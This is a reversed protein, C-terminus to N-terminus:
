DNVGEWVIFARHNMSYGWYPLEYDTGVKTPYVFGLSGAVVKSLNGFSIFEWRTLISASWRSIGPARHCVTEAAVFDPRPEPTTIYLGSAFYIYEAFTNELAGALTEYVGVGPNRPLNRLSLISQDKMWDYAEYSAVYYYGAEAKFVDFNSEEPANFMPPEVYARRGLNDYWMGYRARKLIVVFDKDSIDVELKYNPVFKRNGDWLIEIAGMSTMHEQLDNMDEGEEM